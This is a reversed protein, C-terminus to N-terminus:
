KVVVRRGGRVYIGRTPQQRSDIRRGSLDYLEDGTEAGFSEDDPLGPVITTVGWEDTFASQVKVGASGTPPTIYATFANLTASSGGKKLGGASNVVGYKGNMSAGVTFNSTMSWDSFIGAAGVNNGYGSSATIETATAASLTVNTWTPNVVEAGLHLIYPENAEIVGGSVKNFHLTYGDAQSYTVTELQAVWDNANADRGTLTAVTTSFPLALSYYGAASFERNFFVKRFNGPTYTPVDTPSMSLFDDPWYVEINYTQTKAIFDDNGEQKLTLTANGLRLGTLTIIENDEGSRVLSLVPNDYDNFEDSYTITFDEGTSVGTVIITATCTLEIQGTSGSFHSDTNFAPTKKNFVSFSRTLTAPLYKYNGAQSATVTSTGKAIANLEGTTENVTIVSTNGSKYSVIALEPVNSSATNDTITTGIQLSTELDPYDWEFAQELKEVTVTFEQSKSVYKYTEAQTITVKGSGANVGTLTKTGTVFSLLGGERNQDENVYNINTFTATLAGMSDDNTLEVTATGDVNLTTASLTITVKNALKSVTFDFSKSISGTTNTAKQYITLHATGANLGTITNAQPNYSIVGEGNNVDSTQEDTIAYYFDDTNKDSPYAASTGSFAFANNIVGEVPLSTDTNSGREIEPEYKQPTGKIKIDESYYRDSITITAEEEQGEKNPNPTYTITVTRSGNSNATGTITAPNASFHEEDSSEVKIDGGNSSGWEVTITTTATKDTYVLGLNTIDASAYIYTKRVVYVNSIYQSLSGTASFSFQRANEPLNDAVYQKSDSNIDFKKSGLTNGNIDKWTVTISENVGGWTNWANFRIELPTYDVSVNYDDGGGTFWSHNGDTLSTHLFSETEAISNVKIRVTATAGEYKYTELQTITWVNTGDTTGSTITHGSLSAISNSGSTLSIQFEGNSNYDSSYGLSIDTNHAVNKSNRQENDLTVTIANNIKSVTVDFIFNRSAAYKATAPQYLTITATGANKAKIVGDEFVIVSNGNNVNSTQNTNTIIAEIDTVTNNQSGPTISPTITGDVDVTLSPLDLNLTNAVKTVTIHITKNIGAHDTTEQQTFTIDTSGEAVASIKNNNADYTAVGSKSYSVSTNGNGPSTVVNSWVDGVKMTKEDAAVTFTNPHKTVTITYTATNGNLFTNGEQSMTLTTEGPIDGFITLTNESRSWHIIGSSTASISFTGDTAINLLEVTKSTGMEISTADGEWSPRFTAQKVEDVSFEASITEENFEADGPVSATVISKGLRTAHITKGDADITIAGETGTSSIYTITKNSTVSAPSSVAANLVLNFDLGDKWQLNQKRKFLAYLKLYGSSSITSSLEVFYTKSTSVPTGSCSQTTYWGLFICGDIESAIFTATQNKTDNEEGIDGVIQNTVSSSPSGDGLKVTATGFSSNSSEAEASFNFAPGFCAKYTTTTPSNQSESSYNIPTSFTLNGSVQASASYDGTGKIWGKFAYGTSPVARYYATSSASPNTTTSNTTAETTTANSANGQTFTVYANGGTTKAAVAKGYYTTQTAGSVTVTKTNTGDSITVTASHSGVKTNKYTVTIESEGWKDKGSSIATPSVGFITADSCSVTTSSNANIHTLIVKQSSEGGGKTKTGFAISTKDITYETAHESIHVNNFVGSFNGSYVLQVKKTSPSLQITATGSADTSTWLANSWSSGNASEKVYWNIDTAGSQSAYSFTLKDPIGTFTITAIKDDWNYGGQSSVITGKTNKWIRIGDDSIGTAKGWEMKFGDNIAVYSSLNNKSITLPLNGGWAEGSWALALIILLIIHQFRQKM